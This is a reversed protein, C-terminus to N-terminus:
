FNNIIIHYASDKLKPINLIDSYIGESIETSADLHRLELHM